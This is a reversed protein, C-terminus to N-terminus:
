DDDAVMEPLNVHRCLLYVAVIRIVIAADIGIWFASAVIEGRTPVDIQGIWSLSYAIILGLLVILVLAGLPLLAAEGARRLRTWWYRRIVGRQAHLWDFQISHKWLMTGCIMADLVFFGIAYRVFNEGQLSTATGPAVFHRLLQLVGATALLALIALIAPFVIVLTLIGTM